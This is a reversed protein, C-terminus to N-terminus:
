SNRSASQTIKRDCPTRPAAAPALSSPHANLRLWRGSWPENIGRYAPATFPEPPRHDVAAPDGVTECNRTGARGRRPSGRARPDPHPWTKTEGIDTAPNHPPMVWARSRDSTGTLASRAPDCSQDGPRIATHNGVALAADHPRGAAKGTLFPLLNVGDTEMRAARHSVGGGARDSSCRAPHDAASRRTRPITGKLFLSRCAFGAEWTQRKSGGAAYNTSGNITTGEMTPRMQRQLVRRAHTRRVQSRVAQM